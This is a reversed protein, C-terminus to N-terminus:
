GIRRGPEAPAPPVGAALLAAERIRRPAAGMRGADSNALMAISLRADPYYRLDAAFGATSGSHWYVRRGASEGLLLGLGCGVDRAPGAPSGDALRAPTALEV